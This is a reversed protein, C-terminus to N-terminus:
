ILYAGDYYCTGGTIERGFFVQSNDSHDTGPTFSLSVLSNGNMDYFSGSVTSGDYGGEFRYWEGLNPSGGLDADGSSGNTRETIRFDGFRRNVQVTYGNDPLGKNAGTGSAMFAFLARNDGDDIRLYVEFTDGQSITNPLGGNSILDTQDTDGRLATDGEAVVTDQRTFDGTDGNYYDALSNSKDEYLAAEFNDVVSDPIAAGVEVTATPTGVTLDTAPAFADAPTSLYPLSEFNTFEPAAHTATQIDFSSTVTYEYITNTDFGVEWLRSGDPQWAIGSASTDQTALTEGTVTATSIDFATTVDYEYITDSDGDLEWLRSGNPQWELDSPFGGQTALTTGTFSATSIDFSTTVDYEYIQTQGFGVEWLRSGDPQWALDRPFDDQTALTTGTFSATSIDFPTTVDYEYIANSTSGIEWLRSGDPQWAIGTANGDQTTLTVGTPTATSIEFPSPATHEYILDDVGDVEWLQSGDPQWEIGTTDGGQTARTTGTSYQAVAHYREEAIQNLGSVSWEGNEDTRASAVVSWVDPNEVGQTDIIVVTAGEIAAGSEPVRGSLRTM